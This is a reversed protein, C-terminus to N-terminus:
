EALWRRPWNVGLERVEGVRLGLKTMLPANLSGLTQVPEMGERPSVAVNGVKQAWDVATWEAKAREAHGIAYFQRSAERERSGDVLM